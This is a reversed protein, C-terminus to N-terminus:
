RLFVKVIDQSGDEFIIEVLLMQPSFSKLDIVSETGRVIKQALKNGVISYVNITYIVSQSQVFIEKNYSYIHTNLESLKTFLTATTTKSELSFPVRRGDQLPLDPSSTISFNDGFEIPRNFEIVVQKRNDNSIYVENIELDITATKSNFDFFIIQNLNAATDLAYNFLAKLTKKNEDISINEIKPDQRYYYWAKQSKLTDFTDFITRELKVKSALSKKSDYSSETFYNVLGNEQKEYFAIINKDKNLISQEVAHATDQNVIVDTNVITLYPNVDDLSYTYVKELDAKTADFVTKDWPFATEYVWKENILHGFQNYKYEAARVITDTYFYRYELELIVKGFADYTYEMRGEARNTYVQFDEVKSVLGENNYSYEFRSFESEDIVTVLVDDDYIFECDFIKHWPKYRTNYAYVRTIQANTNYEFEYKKYKDYSNLASDYYVVMSDMLPFKNIEAWTLDINPIYYNPNQAQIIHVSGVLCLIVISKYLLSIHKQLVRKM